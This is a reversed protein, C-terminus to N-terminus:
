FSLHVPKLAMYYLSAKRGYPKDLSDDFSRENVDTFGAILLHNRLNEKDFMYKHENASYAIYNLWDIKSGTNVLSKAYVREGTEILFRPANITKGNGLPTQQYDDNTYARIFAESNPVCILM